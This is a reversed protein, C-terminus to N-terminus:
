LNKVLYGLIDSQTIVGVIHKGEMVPLSGIKYERLLQAAEKITTLPTITKPNKSMIKAVLITDMWYQNDDGVQPEIVNSVQAKRLDRDTIIGVLQKGEVVPLQRIRFEEMMCVADSLNDNVEITIIKKTMIDKVSNNM